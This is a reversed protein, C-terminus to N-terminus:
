PLEEKLYAANNVAKVPSLPEARSLPCGFQFNNQLRTSLSNFSGASSASQFFLVVSLTSPSNAKVAISLSRRELGESEHISPVASTVVVRVAEPHRRGNTLLWTRGSSTVVAGRSGKAANAAEQTPYTDTHWFVQSETLPGVPQDVLIWCGLEGTRQSVPQCTEVTSSQPSWQAGAIPVCLLLATLMSIRLLRWQM